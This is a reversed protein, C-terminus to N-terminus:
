AYAAHTRAAHARTVADAGMVCCLPCLRGLFSGLVVSPTWRIMQEEVSDSLYADSSRPTRPTSLAVAKQTREDM